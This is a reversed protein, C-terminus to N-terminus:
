DGFLIAWLGFTAAGLSPAGVLRLTLVYSETRMWPLFPNWHNEENSHLRLYHAQVQRPRFLGLLGGVAFVALVALGYIKNV